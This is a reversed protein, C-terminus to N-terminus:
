FGGRKAENSDVKSYDENERRRISRSFALISITIVAFLAIIGLEMLIFANLNGSFLGSLFVSALTVAFYLALTVTMGSSMFVTSHGAKTHRVGILGGFM